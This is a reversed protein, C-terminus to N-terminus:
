LLHFTAVSYLSSGNVPRSIQTFWHTAQPVLLGELGGSTGLTQAPQLWFRTVVASGFQRCLM